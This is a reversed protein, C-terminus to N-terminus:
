RTPPRLTDIREDLVATRVEASMPKYSPGTFTAHHILLPKPAMEPFTDDIVLCEVSFFLFCGTYFGRENRQWRFVGSTILPLRYFDRNPMRVLEVGTGVAPESFFPVDFPVAASILDGTGETQYTIRLDITRAANERHGEKRQEARQLEGWLGSV